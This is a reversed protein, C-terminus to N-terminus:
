TSTRQYDPDSHKLLAIRLRESPHDPEELAFAADAAIPGTPLRPGTQHRSVLVNDLPETPKDAGPRESLARRLPEADLRHPLPAQCTDEPDLLESHRDHRMQGSATSRLGLDYDISWRRLAQSSPYPISTTVSMAQRRFVDVNM